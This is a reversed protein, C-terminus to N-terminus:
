AFPAFRLGVNGRVFFNPSPKTFDIVGSEFNAGIANDTFTNGSVIINGNNAGAAYLGNLGSNTITNIDVLADKVANLYIGSGKVDDITNDVLNVAKVM